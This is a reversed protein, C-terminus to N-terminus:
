GGIRYASSDPLDGGTKYFLHGNRSILGNEPEPGTIRTVSVRTSSVDVPEGHREHCVRVTAAWERAAAIELPGAYTITWRECYVVVGATFLNTRRAVARSSGL